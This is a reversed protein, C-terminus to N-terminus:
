IMSGDKRPRGIKTAVEESFYYANQKGASPVLFGLKIAQTFAWRALQEVHPSSFEKFPEHTLWFIVDQETLPLNLAYDIGFPQSLAAFYRRMYAKVDPSGWAVTLGIETKTPNIHRQRLIM